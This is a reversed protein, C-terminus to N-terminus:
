RVQVVKGDVLMVSYAVVVEGADPSQFEVAYIQVAIGTAAAGGLYRLAVAEFAGAGGSGQLDIARDLVSRKPQLAFLALPDDEILGVMFARAEPIEDTGGVLPVSRLVFSGISALLVGALLGVVAMQLAIWTGHRIARLRAM